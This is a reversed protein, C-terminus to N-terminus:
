VGFNRLDLLLHHNFVEIFNFSVPDYKLTSFSLSGILDAVDNDAVNGKIARFAELKQRDNFAGSKIGRFLTLKTRDDM